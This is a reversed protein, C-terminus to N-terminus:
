HFDIVKALSNAKECFGAALEFTAKPWPGVLVFDPSFIFKM